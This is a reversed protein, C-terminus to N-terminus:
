AQTAYTEGEGHRALSGYPARPCWRKQDPIETLLLAQSLSIPPHTLRGSILLDLVLPVAIRGTITVCSAVGANSNGDICKFCSNGPGEVAHISANAVSKKQQYLM